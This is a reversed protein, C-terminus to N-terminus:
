VGMSTEYQVPIRLLFWDGMRLIRAWLDQALVLFMNMNLKVWLDQACELCGNISLTARHDLAPVLCASIGLVAWSDEALVFNWNNSLEAASRLLTWVCM